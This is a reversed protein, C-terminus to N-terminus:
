KEWQDAHKIHLFYFLLANLVISHNINGNIILEEIESLDKLVVEVEENLDFKPEFKKEVNLWLFSYCYNTLFAPNPRVKGILIPTENSCYGTEEICERIAADIPEEKPDILGGPIELTIEDIGHRYQQILVIKKDKTIPIINVWDKSDLVVFDSVSGSKPNERKVWRATFIKLDIAKGFEVTKWPKM